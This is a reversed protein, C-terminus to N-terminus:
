NVRLLGKSCFLGIRAMKFISTTKGTVLSLSKEHRIILHWMDSEHCRLIKVSCRYKLIGKQLCASVISIAALRLNSASLAQM